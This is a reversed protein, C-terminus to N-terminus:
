AALDEEEDAAISRSPPRYRDRKAPSDFFVYEAATNYAKTLEYLENLKTVREETDVGRNGKKKEQANNADALATAQTAVSDLLAAPANAAELQARYDAVSQVLGSFFTVMTEQSDAVKSFRGIGFQRQVAKRTPFAKIVWYRLQNYLKRANDMEQHLADTLDGLKSVNIEDGGEMLAWEVLTQMQDRKTAGLDPDFATFDDLDEALFSLQDSAYQILLDDSYKYNRIVM